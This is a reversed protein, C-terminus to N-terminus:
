NKSLSRLPQPDKAAQIKAIIEQLTQYHKAMKENHQRAKPKLVAFKPHVGFTRAFELIEPLAAQASGGYKKLSRLCGSLRRESGWRDLDVLQVCLPLGEAIQQDALVDLGALRIGDSFMVGSPAPQVVAEHISPLLPELEATSLQTYVTRLAGRARGDQNTLIATAAQRLLDRDVSELSKGILGRRQDFLAFALYRQLYGRKDEPHPPEAVLKLLNPIAVKAPAGIGALAEAAQARLWYNEAALLEIM